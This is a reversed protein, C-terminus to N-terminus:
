LITTEMKVGGSGEVWGDGGGVRLGVRRQSQGHTRQVHEQCGGRKEGKDWGLEGRTVTLTNKIEM